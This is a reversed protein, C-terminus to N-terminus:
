ETLSEACHMRPCCDSMGVECAVCSESRCRVGAKVATVGGPAITSRPLSPPRSGESKAGRRLVLDNSMQTELSTPRHQAPQEDDFVGHQDELLSAAKGAHGNCQSLKTKNTSLRFPRPRWNTVM